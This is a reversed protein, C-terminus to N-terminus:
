NGFLYVIAALYCVLLGVEFWAAKWIHRRWDLYHLVQRTLATLIFAMPVLALLPSILVGGFSLEHLM